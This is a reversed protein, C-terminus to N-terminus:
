LGSICSVCNVLHVLIAHNPASLCRHSVCGILFILFFIGRHVSASFSSGHLLSPVIYNTYPRFSTNRNQACWSDYGFLFIYYPFIVCSSFVSVLFSSLHGITTAVNIQCKFSCINYEPFDQSEGCFVSQEQSASFQM